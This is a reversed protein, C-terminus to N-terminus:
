RPGKETELAARSLTIMAGDSWTWYGSTPEEIYCKSSSRDLQGNEQKGGVQQQAGLCPWRSRETTVGLTARTKTDGQAGARGDVHNGWVEGWIYHRVPAWFNRHGQGTRGGEGAM